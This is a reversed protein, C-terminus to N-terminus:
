GIRGMVEIAKARDAEAYVQTVGVESHGLIVQAAELGFARRVETAMSHRLRNPGWKEVGARKAAYAIARGYSNTTYSTGPSRKPKKKVNSGPKNGENMPTVRAAHKAERREREADAPSFCAADAPRLLYPMLIQQGQAGVYIVREKGRWANKHAGIKIQWVAESRDVMSPTIKCVEGPRCGTRRQFRIMDAVVKPLYKITAEITSDDVPKVRETEPLDCRGYKLPSVTKLTELVSVPIMSKSVAWRFISRLRKMQNNVYTRSRLREEDMTVYKGDKDLFAKKRYYPQSLMVRVAEFQLPGFSLVTDTGYLEKVIRIVPIARLLESSPGKGYYKKAYKVWAALLEVLTLEEVKVGFTPSKGSAFYEAILRHYRSRSEPTGHAGLYYDRRNITVVANGSKHRRYSPGSNQPANVETASRVVKLRDALLEQYKAKSEDSGHRGLYIDKGAISVIAQGSAKHLRYSPIRM